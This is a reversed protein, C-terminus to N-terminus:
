KKGQNRYFDLIKLSDEISEIKTALSQNIESAFKLNQKADQIVQLSKTELDLIEDRIVKVFFIVIALTMISITIAVGLLISSAM